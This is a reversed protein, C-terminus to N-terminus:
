CFQAGSLARLVRDSLAALISRLLVRLTFADAPTELQHPLVRHLRQMGQM